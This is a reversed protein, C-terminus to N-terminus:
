NIEFSGCISNLQYKRGILEVKWIMLCRERLNYLVYCFIYSRIQKNLGEGNFMLNVEVKILIFMMVDKFIVKFDELM